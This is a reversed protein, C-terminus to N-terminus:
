MISPTPASSRWATDRLTANPTSPQIIDSILPSPGPPVSISNPDHLVRCAAEFIPLPLSPVHDSDESVPSSPLLCHSPPPCLFTDFAQLYMQSQEHLSPLGHHLLHSSIANFQLHYESLDQLSHFGGRFQDSVLRELNTINYRPINLYYLNFLRSKFELPRPNTRFRKCPKGIM